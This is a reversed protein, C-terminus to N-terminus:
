NSEWAFGSALRQLHNGPALTMVALGGAFSTYGRVALDDIGDGDIDFAGLLDHGRFRYDDVRLTSVRGEDDLLVVRERIWENAGARLDVAIALRRGRGFCGIAQTSVTRLSHLLRPYPPLEKSRLWQDLSDVVVAARATLFEPVSDRQCTDRAAAPTATATTDPHSAAASDLRFAVAVPVLGKRVLTDLFPPVTVTAVIRGNWYNFGDIPVTDTGWRGVLRLRTGAPFPTHEAVALKYAAFRRPTSKAQIDARGMDVFLQKARTAVIFVTDVSPSFVLFQSVSDALRLMAATPRAPKPVQAGLGVAGLCFGAIVDLRKFSL